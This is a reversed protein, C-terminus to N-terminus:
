RVGYRKAFSRVPISREREIEGLKEVYEPGLEDREVIVHFARAM